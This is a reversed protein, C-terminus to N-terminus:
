RIGVWMTFQLYPSGNPYSSRFHLTFNLTSTLIWLKVNSSDGALNRFMELTSIIFIFSADRHYLTGVMGWGSAVTGLVIWDGSLRLLSELLAFECPHLALIFPRTATSVNSFNFQFTRIFFIISRWLPALFAKPIIKVIHLHILFWGKEPLGFLIAAQLLCYYVIYQQDIAFLTRTFLQLLSLFLLVRWRQRIAFFQDVIIHLTIDGIFKHFLRPTHQLPM